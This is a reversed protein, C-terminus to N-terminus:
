IKQGVKIKNGLMQNTPLLYIYQRKLNDLYYICIILELLTPIIFHHGEREDKKVETSFQLSFCM